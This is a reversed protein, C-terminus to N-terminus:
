QRGFRPNKAINHTPLLNRILWAEYSETAAESALNSKWIKLTCGDPAFPRNVSPQTNGSLRWRYGNGDGQDVVHELIRYILSRSKGIYLCQNGHFVGYCGLTRGVGKALLNRWDHSDDLPMEIDAPPAIASM